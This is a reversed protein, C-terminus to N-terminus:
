VDREQSETLMGKAQQWFAELTDLTATDLDVGKEVALQELLRFRHEFRLNAERLAAEADLDLWRAWNVLAFLTDGLEARQEAPGAAQALEGIEEELKAVVGEIAPWDFGVRRVRAQIKHAQALAPLTPPIGDLLSPPRDGAKAGAKEQAKIAEWNAVVEDSGAVNWDGWVHPHRRKIKAYIGAIVDNLRFQEEERAMQAQMVIHLLLDGLEERLSEDDGTDLAELM